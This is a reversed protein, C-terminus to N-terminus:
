TICKNMHSQFLREKKKKKTNIKVTLGENYGVENSILAFVHKKNSWTTCQIYYMKGNPTKLNIDEECYRGRQFVNRLENSLKLFPIDHDARSKNDTPVITGFKKWGYENFMNNSLVM